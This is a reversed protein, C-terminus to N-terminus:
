GLLPTEKVSTIRSANLVFAPTEPVAFGSNQRHVNGIFPTRPVSPTVPVFTKNRQQQSIQFNNNTGRTDENWTNQTNKFHVSPKPTRLLISQAICPSSNPINKRGAVYKTKVSSKNISRQNSNPNEIFIEEGGM